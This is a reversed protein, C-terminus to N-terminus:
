QHMFDLDEINNYKYKFHTHAQHIITFIISM